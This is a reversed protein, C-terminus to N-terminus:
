SDKSQLSVDAWHVLTSRSAWSLAHSLAPKLSSSTGVSIELDKSAFRSEVVKPQFQGELKSKTVGTQFDDHAAKEKRPTFFKCGCHDCVTSMVVVEKFHPIDLLKMHTPCPKGCGPCSSPFSYLEDPVIDSKFAANQNEVTNDSADGLALAENQEPTRKYETKSWRADANDTSPEIWSNGAPDDLMVTFPFSDGDLMSRARQIFGDVKAHADPDLRRRAPQHFELDEVVTTLLGEVNTLQGRGAPIELGIEVVKAVCTDSKVVQRSLDRREVLTFSHQTGHEQIEGAAQIESNRFGCHPCSFSM